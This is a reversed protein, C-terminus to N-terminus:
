LAVPRALCSGRQRGGRGAPGLRRAGAPPPAPLGAPRSLCRLVGSGDPVVGCRQNRVQVHGCSRRSVRLRGQDVQRDRARDGKVEKVVEALDQDQSFIVAVDLQGVRALRVVDLGLRLDIGKEQPVYRTEVTGDPLEVDHERYRLPRSEVFIGARRMSLLRNAWYGHWMANHARAPTGTYFRVGRSEWGKDACIADFLKQPDYNPYHHGFADKAHRYLNQGDFFAIARKVAPEGAM